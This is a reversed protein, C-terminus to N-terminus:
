YIADAIVDAVNVFFKLNVGPAFGDGKTQFAPKDLRRSLGENEETLFRMDM